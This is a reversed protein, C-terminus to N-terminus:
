YYVTINLKATYSGSHDVLGQRVLTFYVRGAITTDFETGRVLYVSGSEVATIKVSKHGTFVGNDSDFDYRLYTEMTYGGAMTYPSVYYSITLNSNTTLNCNVEHTKRSGEQEPRALFELDAAEFDLDGTCEWSLYPDIGATSSNNNSESLALAAIGVLSVVLVVLLLVKLSKM